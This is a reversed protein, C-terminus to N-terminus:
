PKILQLLDYKQELCFKINEKANELSKYKGFILTHILLIFAYDKINFYKLLLLNRM